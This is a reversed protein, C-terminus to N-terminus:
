FSFQLVSIPAFDVRSRFVGYGIADDAISRSFGPDLESSPVSSILGALRDTSQGLESRGTREDQWRGLLSRVETELAEMERSTEASAEKIRGYTSLRSLRHANSLWIHAFRELEYTEIETPTFEGHVVIESGPFGVRVDVLGLERGLAFATELNNVNFYHRESGTSAKGMGYFGRPDSVAEAVDHRFVGLSSQTVTSRTVDIAYCPEFCRLFWQGDILKVNELLSQAQARWFAVDEEHDPSLWPQAKLLNATLLSAEISSWEYGGNRGTIRLSGFAQPTHRLLRQGFGKFDFQKSIVLHNAFNGGRELNDWTVQNDAAYLCGDLSRITREANGIGSRVTMALPADAAAVEEVELRSVTRLMVHDIGTSPTGRVFLPHQFDVHM